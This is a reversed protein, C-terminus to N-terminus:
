NQLQPAGQNLYPNIGPMSQGFRIFKVFPHGKGDGAHCSVCSTGTFIPGLGTEVTFIQDNFAEDGKIFRKTEAMSLDEVPGDLLEYEEPEQPGLVECSFFLTIMIVSGLVHNKM